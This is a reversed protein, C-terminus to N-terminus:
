KKPKRKTTKKEEILRALREAFGVSFLQGADAQREALTAFGRLVTASHGCFSFARFLFDAPFGKERDDRFGEVAGTISDAATRVRAALTRLQDPHLTDLQDISEFLLRGFACAPCVCDPGDGGAATVVAFITEPSGDCECVTEKVRNTKM